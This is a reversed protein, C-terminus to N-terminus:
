IKCYYYLIIDDVLTWEDSSLDDPGDFEDEDIDACKEGVFINFGQQRIEDEEEENLEIKNKDLDFNDHHEIFNRVNVSWKNKKDELSHYLEHISDNFINQLTDPIHKLETSSAKKSLEEITTKDNKHEKNYKVIDSPKM